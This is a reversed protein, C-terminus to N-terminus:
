VCCIPSTCTLDPVSKKFGYEPHHPVAQLLVFRQQPSFWDLAQKHNAPQTAGLPYATLCTCHALRHPHRHSDSLGHGKTALDRQLRTPMSRPCRRYPSPLHTKLNAKAVVAFFAEDTHPRRQIM